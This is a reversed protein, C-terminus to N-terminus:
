VPTLTITAPWGACTTVSTFLTLTLPSKCDWAGISHYQAGFCSVLTFGPMTEMTWNDFQNAPCGPGVLFSPSDWVCNGQYTITVSENYATCNQCQV